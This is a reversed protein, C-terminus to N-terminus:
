KRDREGSGARVADLLRGKLGAFGVSAVLSEPRPRALPVQIEAVIRGPRASMVYIRDSLIIAEDLDHTVLLVTSGLQSWVQLLWQQMDLRTLADLAGLPEDLLLVTRGTLATRALAVRQRMGGSLAHPAAREFGALGFRDLLAAAERRAEGRSLGRYELPLAANDVVNRWPLLMDRQPMYGCANMREAMPRGAISINGASPEELGAVLRLLTSKGCGSPGVITVFEGTAVHLNVDDIVRLPTGDISYTKSVGAIDIAGAGGRARAPALSGADAREIVAM